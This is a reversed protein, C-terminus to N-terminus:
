FKERENIAQELARDAAEFSTFCALNLYLNNFCHALYGYQKLQTQFAPRDEIALQLYYRAKKLDTLEDGKFPARLVYKAFNGFAFPFQRCFDIPEIYGRALEYHKPHNVCDAM